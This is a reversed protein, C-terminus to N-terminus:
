VASANTPVSGRRDASIRLTSRDDMLKAFRDFLYGIDHPISNIDTRKPM